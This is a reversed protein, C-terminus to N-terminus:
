PVFLLSTAQLLVGLASAFVLWRLFDGAAVHWVSSVELFKSCLLMREM